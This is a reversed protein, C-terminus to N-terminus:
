IVMFASGVLVADGVVNIWHQIMDLVNQMVICIVCVSITIMM